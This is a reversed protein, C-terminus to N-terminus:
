PVARSFPRAPCGVSLAPLLNPDHGTLVDLRDGCCSVLETLRDIDPKAEKIAVINPAESLRAATEPLLDVGTRSPVNYLMVPIECSEAVAMFHDHLGDQNPRNYYPTVVLVGDAGTQRAAKVNEITRRTSRAGAGALIQLRGSAEQIATDLVEKREEVDMCASEGTTGCLVLGRTGQQVHFDVLSRLKERHVRDEPTFPTVLAVFLGQFM